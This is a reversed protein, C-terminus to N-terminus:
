LLEIKANNVYNKLNRKSCLNLLDDFNLDKSKNFKYKNILNVDNIGLYIDKNIMSSYKINTKMNSIKNNFNRRSSYNNSSNIESYFDEIMNKLKSPKELSVSKFFGFNSKDTRSYKNLDNLNKNSNLLYNKKNHELKGIKDLINNFNDSNNIIRIVNNNNRKLNKISNYNKHEETQKESRRTSNKNYSMIMNNENNRNSSYKNGLYKNIRVSSFDFKNKSFYLKKIEQYKNESSGIKTKINFNFNLSKDKNKVDNEINNNETNKEILELQNKKMKNENIQEFKLEIQKLKNIFKNNKGFKDNIDGKKGSNLLENVKKELSKNKMNKIKKITYNNIFQSYKEIEPIKNARKITFNKDKNKNININNNILFNLKEKKTKNKSDKNIIINIFDKDNNDNKETDFSKSYSNTNNHISQNKAKIDSINEKKINDKLTEIPKREKDLRDLETM